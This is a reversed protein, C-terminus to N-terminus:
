GRLPELGLWDALPVCGTQRTADNVYVLWHGEAGLV